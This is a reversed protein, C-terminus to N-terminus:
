NLVRVGLKKFQTYNPIVFQDMNTNVVTIIGIPIGFTESIFKADANPDQIILKDLDKISSILYKDIEHNFPPFSYGIVVLINTKSYISKAIERANKSIESDSEWAYNIYNNFSLRKKEIEQNVSSIKNVGSKLGSKADCKFLTDDKNTGYFGHFGNLHCVDLNSSNLNSIFPLYKNIDLLSEKKIDTFKLYANEIQLDYNWTVFKINKQLKPNETGKELYTALLNIYRNDIISYYSLDSGKGRYKWNDDKTLNWLTFFCSVATKLKTLESIKSQLFLKKAYTDVTNFELAKTGIYGILWVLKEEPPLHKDEGENYNFKHKLVNPLEIMKEAQEKWIPCANYSAGAGFLYTINKM